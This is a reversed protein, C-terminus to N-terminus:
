NSSAQFRASTLSDDDQKQWGPSFHHAFPVLSVLSLDERRL